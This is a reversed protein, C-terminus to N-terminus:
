ALMISAWTSLKTHFFMVRLEMHDYRVVSRLENQGSELCKVLFLLYSQIFRSGFMRLSVVLGFCDVFSNEIPESISLHWFSVIPRLGRLLGKIGVFSELVLFSLFLM